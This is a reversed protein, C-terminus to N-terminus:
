TRRTNKSGTFCTVVLQTLFVHFYIIISIRFKVQLDRVAESLSEMMSSFSLLLIFMILICQSATGVRILVAKGLSPFAPMSM